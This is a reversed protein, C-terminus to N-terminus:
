KFFMFFKTVILIVLFQCRFQQQRIRATAEREAGDIGGEEEESAEEGTAQLRVDKRQEQGPVRVGALQQFCILYFSLNLVVITNLLSLSITEDCFTTLVM